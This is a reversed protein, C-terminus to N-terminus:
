FAMREDLNRLLQLYEKQINLEPIGVKNRDLSKNIGLKIFFMDLADFMNIEPFASDRLHHILKLTKFGDFWIKKQHTLQKGSKTNSLIKEWQKLYNNQLLFNYLETHIKKAQNLVDQPNSIADLNYVELWDKLVVFVAPDFLLYENRTGSLFRTVRQGTGFPVRWSSRKSPYVTASDIKSIPYNKSLKELFYFDEAAKRKNMGGIKIYANHDCMM